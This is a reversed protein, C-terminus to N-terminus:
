WSAFEVLLLKTGRLDSLAITRSGDLTPLRLASLPEDVRWPSDQLSCVLAAVLPLAVLM